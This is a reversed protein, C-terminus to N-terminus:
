LFTKPKKYYLVVVVIIIFYLIVLVIGLAWIIGFAIWAWKTFKKATEPEQDAKLYGLLGLVGPIAGGCVFGVITAILANKKLSEIDFGGPSTMSIDGQNCINTRRTRIRVPGPRRSRAAQGPAPISGWDHRGPAM